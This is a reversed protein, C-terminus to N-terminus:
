QVGYQISEQQTQNTLNLQPVGYLNIGLMIFGIVILKSVEAIVFYDKSSLPLAKCAVIVSLKIVELVFYMM